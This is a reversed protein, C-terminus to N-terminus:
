RATGIRHFRRQFRGALHNLVTHLRNSIKKASQLFPAGFLSTQLTARLSLSTQVDM